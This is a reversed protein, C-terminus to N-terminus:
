LKGRDAGDVDTGPEPGEILKQYVCPCEGPEQSRSGGYEVGTGGCRSCAINPKGVNTKKIVWKYRM